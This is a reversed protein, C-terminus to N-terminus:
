STVSSKRTTVGARAVTVGIIFIVDVSVTVDDADMGTVTLADSTPLETFLIVSTTLM